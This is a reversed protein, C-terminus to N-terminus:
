VNEVARLFAGSPAPSKRKLEQGRRRAYLWRIAFLRNRKVINFRWCRRQPRRNREDQQIAWRKGPAWRIIRPERISRAM